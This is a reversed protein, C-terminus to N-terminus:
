FLAWSLYHRAEAVAWHIAAENLSQLLQPPDWLSASLGSKSPLLPGLATSSATSESRLGNGVSVPPTPPPSLAQTDPKESCVGGGETELGASGLMSDEGQGLSREPGEGRLRRHGSGQHLRWGGLRPCVQCQLESHLRSFGPSVASAPSVHLCPPGM